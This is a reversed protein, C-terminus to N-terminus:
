GDTYCRACFQDTGQVGRPYTAACKKHFWLLCRCCKWAPERQGFLTQCIMCSIKLSEGDGTKEKLKLLISYINSPLYTEVDTLDVELIRRLKSQNKDNRLNSVGNLVIGDPLTGSGGLMTPAFNDGILWSLVMNRKEVAKAAEFPVM